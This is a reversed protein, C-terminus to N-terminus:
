ASRTAAFANKIHPAMNVIFRLPKKVTVRGYETDVTASSASVYL